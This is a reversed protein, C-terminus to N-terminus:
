TSSGSPSGLAYGDDNTLLAVAEELISSYDLYSKEDLL